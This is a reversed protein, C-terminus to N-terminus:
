PHGTLPWVADCDSGVCRSSAPASDWEFHWAEYSLRRAGVSPDTAEAVALRAAQRTDISCTPVPKQGEPAEVGARWDYCDNGQRDTLILDCAVGASHPSVGPWALGLNNPNGSRRWRKVGEDDGARRSKDVMHKAKLVYGCEPQSDYRVSRFCSGVRFRYGLRQRTESSRLKADLRALGDLVEQTARPAGDVDIFQFPGTITKLQPSGDAISRPADAPFGSCTAAGDDRADPDWKTIDFRECACRCYAVCSDFDSCFASTQPKPDVLALCAVPDPPGGGVAKGRAAPVSGHERALKLFKPEDQGSASAGLFALALLAAAPAARSPSM